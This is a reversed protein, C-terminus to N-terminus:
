GIRAIALSATDCILPLLLKGEVNLVPLSVNVKRFYFSWALSEFRTRGGWSPFPQSCQDRGKGSETLQQLFTCSFMIGSSLQAPIQKPSFM